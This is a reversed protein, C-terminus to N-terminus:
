EDTKFDNLETKKKKLMWLEAKKQLFPHARQNDLQERWADFM